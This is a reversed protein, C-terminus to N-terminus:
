VNGLYGRRQEVKVEESRKDYHKDLVDQGVNMRDPVVKEPVDETLFRTISGRRIAHPSVNVPCKCYATSNSAECEEPDREKPCEGTYHCPRTVKYVADRISSRNM